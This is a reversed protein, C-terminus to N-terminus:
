MWHGEREVLYTYYCGCLNGPIEAFWTGQTDPEMAVKSFCDRDQPNGTRFLCVEAHFATPAWLRFRTADPSWTAGLDNGTYTFAKEFAPASYFDLM